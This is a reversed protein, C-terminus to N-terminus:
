TVLVHRFEAVKDSITRRICFLVCLDYWSEDIAQYLVIALLPTLFIAVATLKWSTSTSGAM